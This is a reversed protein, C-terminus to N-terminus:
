GSRSGSRRGRRRSRRAVQGGDEEAGVGGPQPSGSSSRFNRVRASAAPRTLPAIASAPRRRAANRRRAARGRTEDLASPQDAQDDRDDGAARREREDPPLAVLGGAVGRREGDGRDDGAPREGLRREEELSQRDPLRGCAPVREDSHDDGHEGSRHDQEGRERQEEPSTSPRAGPRPSLTASRGAWARERSVARPGPSSGRSAIAQRTAPTPNRVTASAAQACASPTRQRKAKM